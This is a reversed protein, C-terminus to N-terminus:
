SPAVTVTIPMERSLCMDRKCIGFTITGTLEHPGADNPTVTIPISLETEALTEADGTSGRRGGELRQKAITVGPASALSVVFPYETNIHFGKGPTVRIRATAAAGIRASAPQVVELSGEEPSLTAAQAATGPPRVVARTREGPIAIKEPEMERVPEPKSCGVLLLMALVTRMRSLVPTLQLFKGGDHDPTRM